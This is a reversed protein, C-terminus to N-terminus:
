CTRRRPIVRGPSGAFRVPQDLTDRVRDVRHEGVIAKLEGRRPSAPTDGFNLLHEGRMLQKAGVGEVQGASLVADLMAERFEIMRPRVTLDFPHVAGNLVRGDSPEIVLGVLAKPGM